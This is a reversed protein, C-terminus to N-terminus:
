ENCRWGTSASHPPTPSRLSSTSPGPSAPGPRCPAPGDLGRRGAPHGPDRRRGVRPSRGDARQRRPTRRVHPRIDVPVGLEVLLAKPDASTRLTSRCYRFLTCTPCTAPDFTAELHAVYARSARPRRSSPMGPGGRTARRCANRVESRHDDLLEVLAEPQLFANRPAALVGYSHVSMGAPLRTWAQASEAGLAVQLFGKLLRTDEIRSGSGNTTRRTVRRDAVLGPRGRGPRGCRLRAEGRDCPDGRLRRLPDRSRPDPDRRRRAAREHAEQLLHATTDLSVHANVTQVETPRDLGLRGVTTTAVESAFGTGRVLREFTMARMWRAEPIRGSDDAFGVDEALQRRPRGVILPDTARFRACAAHASAAVASSGGGPSQSTVSFGEAFSTPRLRDSRIITFEM